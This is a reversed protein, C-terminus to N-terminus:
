VGMDKRSYNSSVTAYIVKGLVNTILNALSDPADDEQKGQIDLSQSFRSMCSMFKRYEQSQKEKTLFYLKYTNNNTDTGDIQSSVALIRDLKSKISPCRKHTINCHVRENKLDQEIDNALLDGGNNGEFHVRTIKHKKIKAVTAPRSYKLGNKTYIVDVIYVDRGYVYAIPMSYNDGGGYAVDVAAVVRDPEGSPLETFYNFQKTDFLKGERDMAVCFFKAMAIIEDDDRILREWHEVTKELGFDYMFNSETREENMCPVSISRFWSEQSYKQKLYSIHDNISWMTGIVLIPVDANVLRDQLMGTYAYRIKQCQDPNNAQEATKILDDVYLMGDVHIIGTAGVEISVFMLNPERKKRETYIMKFEASNVIEPFDPFIEKFRYEPSTLFDLIDQYFGTVLMNANGGMLSKSLPNMIYQYAFAFEGLVTNHTVIFDDTLYLHEPHDVMICRCEEKGHYEIKTIYKKNCREKKKYKLLHKKSSCPIVYNGFSIYIRYNTQCEFIENDKKYRGKRSQLIARGGLSLVLERIDNALQKSVTSYEITTGSDAVYGDSDILGQLLAIRDNVDSLMYKKPIFKSNACCGVLGLEKLAQKTYSCDGDFNLKSIGMEKETYHTLKDGNPLINEIKNVIDEEVNTITINGKGCYGDGILIGLLYPDLPLNKKSFQVPECYDISYNLAKDKGIYLKDFMEQLEITRYKKGDSAKHKNNGKRKTRDEKTQVTWLHEKSCIVSTNDDFYVKYTDKIGQDYVGIVPAFSGDRCAVLDGVKIDGIRKYGEPTVVNSSVRLAKGIGPPSELVLMKIKRDLLDQLAQIFGHKKLVRRRPVYFQQKIPRNWEMAIMFAEFDGNRALSDYANKLYDNVSSQEEESLNETVNEKEIIDVISYCLNKLKEKEGVKEYDDRLIDLVTLYNFINDGRGNKIIEEIDKIQKKVYDM